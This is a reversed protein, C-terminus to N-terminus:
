NTLEIRFCPPSLPEWLQAMHCEQSTTDDARQRTSGIEPFLEGWYRLMRDEELADVVSILDRAGFATNILSGTEKAREFCTQATIAGQTWLRGLSVDSSNGPRTESLWTFAEFESEVCTFPLTNGTGSYM